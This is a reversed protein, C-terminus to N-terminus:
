KFIHLFSFFTTKLAESCENKVTLYGLFWKTFLKMQAFISKFINKVNKRAKGSFPKLKTM